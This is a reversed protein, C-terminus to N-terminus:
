SRSKEPESLASVPLNLCEAIHAVETASAGMAGSEVRRYESLTLGAAGAMETQSISRVIRLLRLRRGFEIHRHSAAPLLSNEEPATM